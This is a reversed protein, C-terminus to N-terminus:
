IRHGNHFRDITLVLFKTSSCFWAIKTERPLLEHIRMLSIPCKKRAINSTGQNNEEKEEEVLRSARSMPYTERTAGRIRRNAKRMRSYARTLCTTRLLTDQQIPCATYSNTLVHCFSFYVVLNQQLLHVQTQSKHPSALWNFFFRHFHKM